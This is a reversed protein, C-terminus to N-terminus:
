KSSSDPCFRCWPNGSPRITTSQVQRTDTDVSSKAEDQNESSGIDTRNPLRSTEDHKAPPIQHLTPDVLGESQKRASTPDSASPSTPRQQTDLAQILRGILYGGDDMRTGHPLPQGALHQGTIALRLGEASQVGQNLANIVDEYRFGPSLTAKITLSNGPSLKRPDNPKQIRPDIRFSAYYHVNFGPWAPDRSPVPQHRIQYYQGLWKDTEIHSFLNTHRGLDIGFSNIRSHPQPIMNSIRLLIIKPNNKDETVELLVYLGANYGHKMGGQGTRSFDYVAKRTGSTSTSNVIAASAHTDYYALCTLCTTFTLIFVRTWAHVQTSLLVAVKHKTPPKPRIHTSTM